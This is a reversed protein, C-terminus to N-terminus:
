MDSPHQAHFCKMGGLIALTRKPHLGETHKPCIFFNSPIKSGHESLKGPIKNDHESFKSAMKGLLAQLIAPLIGPGRQMGDRWFHESFKRLVQGWVPQLIAHSVALGKGPILGSILGPFKTVWM